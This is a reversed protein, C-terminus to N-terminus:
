EIKKLVEKKPIVKGNEYFITNKLYKKNDVITNFEWDTYGVDVTEDYTSRGKLSRAKKVDFDTLDFHIKGGRSVVDDSVKLFFDEFSSFNRVNYGLNKWAKHEFAGVKQSFPLLKDVRSSRLSRTGLAIDFSNKSFPVGRSFAIMGVANVVHPLSRATQHGDGKYIGEGFDYVGFATSVLSESLSKIQFKPDLQQTWDVSYNKFEKKSPSKMSPSYGYGAHNPNNAVHSVGNSTMKLLEIGFGYWFGDNEQPDAEELGDLDIFRIPKNGAFQYPTYWPYEQSLPDVSLFKGIDPNYIRFGYDYATLGFEGEDDKRKGNFGFRYEEACM